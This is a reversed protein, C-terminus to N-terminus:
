SADGDSSNLLDILAQARTEKTNDVELPAPQVPPAPIPEAPTDKGLDANDSSSVEIKPKELSKQSQESLSADESPDPFGTRNKRKKKPVVDPATAPESETDKARKSKKKLKKESVEEGVNDADENASLEAEARKRKKEKKEKKSVVEIEPSDAEVINPKGEPKQRKSRKEAKTQKQPSSSGESRLITPQPKAVPPRNQSAESGAM